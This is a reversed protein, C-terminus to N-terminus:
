KIPVYFYLFRWMWGCLSYRCLVNSSGGRLYKLGGEEEAHVCLNQKGCMIFIGANTPMSHMIETLLQPLAELFLLNRNMFDYFFQQMLWHQMGQNTKISFKGVCKGVSRLFTQNENCMIVKRNEILLRGSKYPPRIAGFHLCMLVLQNFWLLWGRQPSDMARYLAVIITECKKMLKKPRNMINKQLKCGLWIVLLVRTFGLTLLGNFCYAASM